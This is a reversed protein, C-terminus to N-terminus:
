LLAKFPDLDVFLTVAVFVFVSPDLDALPDLAVLDNVDLADDWPITRQKWQIQLDSQQYDFLM